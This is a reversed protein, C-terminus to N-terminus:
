KRTRFLSYFAGTILLSTLVLHIVFDSTKNFQIFPTLLINLFSIGIVMHLFLNLKLRNSKKQYLFIIISLILCGLFFYLWIPYRSIGGQVLTGIGEAQRGWGEGEFWLGWQSLSLFLPFIYALRALSNNRVQILNEPLFNMIGAAIILGLLGGWLTFAGHWLTFVELWQGEFLHWNILIYSLRGGLVGGVVFLFLSKELNDRESPESDGKVYLFYSILFAVLFVLHSYRVAVGGYRIFIPNM